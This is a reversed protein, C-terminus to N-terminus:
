SNPKRVNGPPLISVISREAGAGAGRHRSLLALRLAHRKSLKSIRNTLKRSDARTTIENYFDSYDEVAHNTLPSCSATIMPEPGLPRAAAIVKARASQLTRTRSPLEVM